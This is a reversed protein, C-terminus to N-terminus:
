LGRKGLGLADDILRDLANPDRFSIRRQEPPLQVIWGRGGCVGCNRAGRGSCNTCPVKKMRDDLIEFRKNPKKRKV